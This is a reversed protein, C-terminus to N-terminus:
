ASVRSVSLFRLGFAATFVLLSGEGEQLLAAEFCSTYATFLCIRLFLMALPAVQPAHLSRYFDILPLVVLWLTVLVAGPIGMTLIVELYGNHSNHVTNAWDTNGGSMGYLVQPTGWFAAYGHGIFPREMMRTLAFQWVEDRGTFSPDTLVAGLSNRIPEFFVSGVSFINLGVLVSLGFAVGLMPRHVRAMITSVILVLPLAVISTKSHTFILFSAAFVIVTAGIIVSRARAVFLGIFVFAAMAAGTANKHGFVGRWNGVLGLEDGFDSAQHVALSPILLVGLYCLALVVLVVATLVESFQRMNKPLLLAMAAIGMAAFTFALRRASLLPEWSTVVSLVLWLLTALFIPRALMALRAPQHAMCWVALVAFLLSYGVQNIINGAESIETPEALSSFPRFSIWLMLFVTALLISRVLSDTDINGIAPSRAPTLGLEAM